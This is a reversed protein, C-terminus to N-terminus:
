CACMRFTLVTPGMLIAVDFFYDVVVGGGRYLEGKGWGIDRM